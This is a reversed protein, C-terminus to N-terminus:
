NTSHKSFMCLIMATETGLVTYLQVRATTHVPRYGYCERLLPLFTLLQFDDKASLLDSALKYQILGQIGQCM